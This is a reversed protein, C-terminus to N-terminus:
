ATGGGGSLMGPMIGLSEIAANWMGAKDTRFVIGPDAGCILWSNRRLESELQGGAWAAYGLVIILNSPGTGNGIDELIDKSTTLGFHESVFETGAYESCDSSHVIIARNQEVPGGFHVELVANQEGDEAAESSIFEALPIHGVPKNLVVGMAGNENHMCMLIVSSDFRPDGIGPMAVLLSGDLYKDSSEIMSVVNLQNQAVACPLPSTRKGGRALRVGSQQVKADNM